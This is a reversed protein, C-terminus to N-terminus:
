ADVVRLSYTQTGIAQSVTLAATTGLESGAVTGRRWVYLVINGEPDTSANADLAVTAGAPSTCEVTADGGANATPPENVITGSLDVAVATAADEVSGIAAGQLACTH